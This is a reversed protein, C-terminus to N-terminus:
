LLDIDANRDVYLRLSPYLRVSSISGPGLSLFLHEYLHNLCVNSLDTVGTFEASPKLSPALETEWQNESVLTPDSYLIRM